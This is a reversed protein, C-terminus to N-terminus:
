LKDKQILRGYELILLSDSVDLTIKNIDPFLQQAKTKLKNKWQSTTKTGKHGLQLEKQWKQPTVETYPIKCAMLAMEIQGFGRGFNFMQSAGNGPVGQVRELYCVSNKKYIKLLSLLEQPTSPMKILEVVRKLDCSYVAIGGNVGPDIGIIKSHNFYRVRDKNKMINIM